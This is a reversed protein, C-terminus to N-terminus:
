NREVQVKSKIGQLIQLTMELATQLQGQQAQLVSIRIDREVLKQEYEKLREELQPIRAKGM